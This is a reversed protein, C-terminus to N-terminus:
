VTSRSPITTQKFQKTSDFEAMEEITPKRSL